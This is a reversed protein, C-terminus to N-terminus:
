NGRAACSIWAISYPRPPPHRGARCDAGGLEDVRDNAGRHVRALGAPERLVGTWGPIDRAYTPPADGPRSLASHHSSAPDSSDHEYDDPDDNQQPSTDEPGVPVGDDIDALELHGRLTTFPHRHRGDETADGENGPDQQQHQRLASPHLRGREADAPRWKM